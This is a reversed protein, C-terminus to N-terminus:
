FFFISFFFFILFFFFIKKVKILKDILNLDKNQKIEFFNYYSFEFIQDDNKKKNFFQAQVNISRKSITLSLEREKKKDNLDIQEDNVTISPPLQPKIIKKIEAFDVTEIKSKKQDIIKQNEEEKTKRKREGAKPKTQATEKGENREKEPEEPKKNIKKNKKSRKKKPKVEFNKNTTENSKIEGTKSDM